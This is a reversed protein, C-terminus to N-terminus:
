GLLSKLRERARSLRSKVTGEPIRLMQSIQKTSFNEYYYLVVVVRFENELQLVLNWLEKENTNDSEVSQQEEVEETVDDMYVLHSDKRLLNRASNIVIKILWSKFKTCDKLRGKKEYAKVIADCVADQADADNRVVVYAVRYLEIEYQKVLRAFDEDNM